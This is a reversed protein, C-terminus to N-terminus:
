QGKELMMQGILWRYVRGAAEYDEAEVVIRGGFAAHLTFSCRALDAPRETDQYPLWDYVPAPGEAPESM